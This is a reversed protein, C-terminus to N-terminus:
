PRQWAGASVYDLGTLGDQHREGSAPNYLGVILVYSGAPVDAFPVDFRQVFVDGPYLTYPDVGLGDAGAVRRGSSDLLQVFAALRPTGDEGPVPPKSMLPFPPLVLPVEVRWTTLVVLFSGEAAAEVTRLALGNEFQAIAASSSDDPPEVVHAAYPTDLPISSGLYATGWGGALYEPLVAIGGGPIQIYAVRPDFARVRWGEGQLDLKMVQQDWREVLFSGIAVNRNSPQANLWSAAEHLDSHHLVRNFPDAPWVSFYDRIGRVGEWGLFILAGVLITAAHLGLRSASHSAWWPQVLSSSPEALWRGAGTIALAPLIMAVPQALITHGLSAAPVSLAGPTIGAGIWLLLLAMRPDHSPGFAGRLATVIGAWFLIGGPIGFVPRHPVNYLWEEDGNHTFMSLTTLSYRALTSFDGQRADHLPRAVESVRTEAEPQQWLTIALPLGLLAAILLALTLGKWIATWLQRNWILLYLGWAAVILPLGRSAFYTYFGVGMWM